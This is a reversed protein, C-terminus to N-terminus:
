DRFGGVKTENQGSNTEKVLSYMNEKGNSIYYREKKILM